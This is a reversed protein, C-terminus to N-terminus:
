TNYMDKMTSEVIDVNMVFRKRGPLIILVMTSMSQYIRQGPYDHLSPILYLISIEMGMGPFATKINFRFEGMAGSWAVM